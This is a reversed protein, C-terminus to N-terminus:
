DRFTYVIFGLSAGMMGVAILASRIDAIGDDYLDYLYLAAQIGCILGFLFILLVRGISLPRIHRM